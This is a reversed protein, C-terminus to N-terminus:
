PESEEAGSGKGAAGGEEGGPEKRLGAGEGLGASMQPREERWGMPRAQDTGERGRRPEAGRLSAASRLRPPPELSRKRHQKRRRGLMGKEENERSVSNQAVRCKAGLAKIVDHEQAAHVGAPSLLFLEVARRRRKNSQREKRIM